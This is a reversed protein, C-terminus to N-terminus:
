LTAVAKDILPRLADPLRVLRFVAERGEASMKRLTKQLIDIFKAEEYDGHESAVSALTHELFVLGIVDEIQQKVKEPEAAPLDVKNLVLVVTGTATKVLDTVYRDGKGSPESADVVLCTVDADRLADVATALTAAADGLNAGLSLVLTRSEAM